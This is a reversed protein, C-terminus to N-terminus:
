IVTKKSFKCNNLESITALIINFLQSILLATLLHNMPDFNINRKKYPIVLLFKKLVKCNGHVIQAPPLKTKLSNQFVDLRPLWVVVVTLHNWRCVVLVPVNAQDPCCGWLAGFVYQWFEWYFHRNKKKRNPQKWLIDTTKQQRLLCANWKSDFHFFVRWVFMRRLFQMASFTAEELLRRPENESNTIKRRTQCHISSTSYVASYRMNITIVPMQSGYCHNAPM